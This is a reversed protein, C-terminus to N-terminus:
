EIADRYIWKVDEQLFAQPLLYEGRLVAVDIYQWRPNFAPVQTQVAQSILLTCYFPQEERPTLVFAKGIQARAIKASQQRQQETLFHPRVIAVADAKDPALFDALPTMLVQEPRAPDDDTTAHVILVEPQTQVIMGIHSYESQSLHRIIRSESSVGGRFIWDGVQLIKESPMNLALRKPVDNAKMLWIMLISFIVMLILLFQKVPKKWNLLQCLEFLRM